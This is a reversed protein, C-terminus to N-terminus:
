NLITSILVLFTLTAIILINLVIKNLKISDLNQDYLDKNIFGNDYNLNRINITSNNVKSITDEYEWKIFLTITFLIVLLFPFSVIFIRYDM